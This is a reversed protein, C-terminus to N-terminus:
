SQRTRPNSPKRIVERLTPITPFRDKKLIAVLLNITIQKSLLRALASDSTHAYQRM